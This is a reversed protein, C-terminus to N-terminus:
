LVVYLVIKKALSRVAACRECVRPRWPPHAFLEIMLLVAIWNKFVVITLSGDGPTSLLVGM